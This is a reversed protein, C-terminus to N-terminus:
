YCPWIGSMDGSKVSPFLKGVDHLNRSEAFAAWEEAAPNKL